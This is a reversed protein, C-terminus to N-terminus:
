SGGTAAQNKFYQFFLWGMETHATNVVVNDDITFGASWNDIYISSQRLASATARLAM